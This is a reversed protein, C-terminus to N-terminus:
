QPGVAAWGGDVSVMAVEGWFDVEAAETCEGLLYESTTMAPVELLRVQCLTRGFPGEVVDSYLQAALEGGYFADPRESGSLEGPIATTTGSALELVAYYGTDTVATTVAYDPGILIDDYHGPVPQVPYDAVEGTNLDLVASADRLLVRDGATMVAGSPVRDLGNVDPDDADVETRWVQEGGADYGTLRYESGNDAVVVAQEGTVLVGDEPRAPAEALVDGSAPDVLQAGPDPPGEEAITRLALLPLDQGFDLYGGWGPDDSDTAVMPLGATPLVGDIRWRVEGTALDVGRVTGPRSHDMSYGPTALVLVGEAVGLVAGTLDSRWLEDGTRLDRAGLTPWVEIPDQATLTGTLLVDEVVLPMPYPAELLSRVSVQDSWMQEGDSRSWATLLVSEEQADMTVLLEDSVVVRPDAVPVRFQVDQDPWILAPVAILVVVLVLTPLYLWRSWEQRAVLAALALGLLVAGVYWPAVAYLWGLVLGAVALVALVLLSWPLERRAGASETGPM